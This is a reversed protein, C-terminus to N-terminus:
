GLAHFTVAPVLMLLLTVILTVMGAAAAFSARHASLGRIWRSFAILGFHIWLALTLLVNPDTYDFGSIAGRHAMWIGMNLGLTLFLFGALAAHRTLQALRELNPLESFLPGFRRARMQRYLLLHLSGYIGSLVLAASAVVSTSVHLLRFSLQASSGPIADMTGFASAGLQLVTLVLLVIAGDTRKNSRLNIGAYLLLTTFVVSSVLLWTGMHPMGGAAEFRIWFSAAHLLVTFGFLLPRLRSIHPQREGAFAMGYLLATAFYAMPLLVLIPQLAAVM